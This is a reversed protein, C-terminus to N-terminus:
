GLLLLGFVGIVIGFALIKAMRRPWLWPWHNLEDLWLGLCVVLLLAFVLMLM